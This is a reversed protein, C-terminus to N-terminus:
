LLIDSVPVSKCVPALDHRGSGGEGTNFIRSDTEKQLSCGKPMTTRSGIWPTGGNTIGLAAIAEICESESQIELGEPCADEGYDLKQYDSPPGSTPTTPEITPTTPAPTTPAPTPRLNPRSGEGTATYGPPICSESDSIDSGGENYLVTWVDGDGRPDNRRAGHAAAFGLFSPDFMSNCHGPSTQLGTLAGLGTTHRGAQHEGKYVAGVAECRMRPSFGDRSDHSFYGQICQDEAHLWAAIWLTCDFTITAPNPPHYHRGPAEIENCPGGPNCECSFGNNRSEIFALFYDWEEPKVTMTNEVGRWETVEERSTRFFDPPAEEGTWKCVPALDWRRGEGTPDTNFITADTNKQLMCFRPMTTRSGTWPTGGNTVGLYEIAESCEEETTIDFGDPCNTWYYPFRQYKPTTEQARAPQGLGLVVAMAFCTFRPM